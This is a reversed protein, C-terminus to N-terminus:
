KYHARLESFYKRGVTERHAVLWETLRREGVPAEGSVLLEAQLGELEDRTLIVDGLVAGLLRTGGLAWSSPVHPLWVPVDLLRAMIRLLEEFSFVEPGAVDRVEQERRAGAAVALDALDEAAAPQLRYRGSGPIPFVPFRRLLWALNNFLIGRDGFLVTPRLIAHSIGCEALAREVQAKGRYYPLPSDISPNAISVQVIREVGAERAATFLTQSEAVAREFTRRGRPFRIWYTNYLVRAGELSKTLALPDAFSLPAVEVRGALEDARRPHNTLTRVRVGARLLREAILRGTFGFAGTVVQLESM